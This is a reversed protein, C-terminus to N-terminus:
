FHIYEKLNLKSLIQFNMRIYLFIIHIILLFHKQLEFVKFYYKLKFIM